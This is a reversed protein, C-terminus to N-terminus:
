GTRIQSVALLATRAIGGFAVNIKSTSNSDLWCAFDAAIAQHGLGGSVLSMM